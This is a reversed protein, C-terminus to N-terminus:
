ETYGNYKAALMNWDYDTEGYETYSYYAAWVTGCKTPNYCQMVRECM